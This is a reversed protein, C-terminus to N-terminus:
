ENKEILANLLEYCALVNPLGTLADTVAQDRMEKQVASIKKNSFYVIIIAIIALLNGFVGPLSTINNRGVINMLILPLQVVLVVLSTWFGKEGFYMTLILVSINAISSFVGAFTYVPLMHGFMNVETMSSATISVIATALFYCVVLLVYKWTAVEQKKAYLRELTKEIALSQGPDSDKKM